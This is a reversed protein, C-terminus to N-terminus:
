GSKLRRRSLFLLAPICAVSALALYRFNDVYSLLTSQRLLEKGLVAVAQEAATCAGSQPTLASQISELKQQYVTDYPTMHAVLNTQHVQAGRAMLTAMVAIGIASGINRLLNYIGTANAVEERRLNGMTITTLPVFILGSATGSLFNPIVVNRPSIELNLNGVAYLSYGLTLFGAALMLRPSVVSILQGVLFMTILAGLGRPAMTLGSRLAPYGLLTQLFLPLYATYSFLVAGSAVTNITTGITFTPNCLLQLNVVPERVQLEWFIFATLGLIFMVLLTRIFRSDLWDEQQGKDLMILLSAVWIVLLILGIYDVRATGQRIYPPDEVFLYVMLLSILGIPLNLYFVWRWSYNDTIWGGLIPGVIPAVIVSVGYIAMAVARKAPPFSELLVAQSVPQMAGGGLGQIIRAAVLFGLSHAMGCALSGASFTLICGMVFRKRRFLRSLWATAPMIVANAALYSTIVWTVEETGASVTGAIYPLAVNVVTSALVVMVTPSMVAVAILWPHATSAPQDATQQASPYPRSM